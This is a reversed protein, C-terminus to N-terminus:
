KNLAENTKKGVIGDVLLNNDNQFKKVAEYTQKGFIGDAKIGLKEQLMKVDIGRSYMRLTKTFIYKINLDQAYKGNLYPEPDIAGSYGNKQEINYWAGWNEGKAVPKLAFHLHDGTSVGTNDGYGILEGAKVKVFGTKDAIPSTFKPERLPDCLHWYITKFYSQGDEYDYEKDTIIVVGHGGSNDVQYSAWGDHSAYIPKGHFIALDIGPHGKFGQQKYVANLNQGFKQNVFYPKVPIYLELKM